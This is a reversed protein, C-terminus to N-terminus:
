AGYLLDASLLKEAEALAARGRAIEDAANGRLQEATM